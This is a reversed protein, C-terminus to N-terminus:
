GLSFSMLGLFIEDPLRAQNKERLRNQPSPMTRTVPRSHWRTCSDGQKLPPFKGANGTVFHM